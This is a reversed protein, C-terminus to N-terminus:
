QLYSSFASVDVTLLEAIMMMEFRTWDTRSQTYVDAARETGRATEEPGRAMDHQDSRGAIM